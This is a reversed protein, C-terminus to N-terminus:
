RALYGSVDDRRGDLLRIAFEYSLHHTDWTFPVRAADFLECGTTGCFGDLKSVFLYDLAEAAQRLARDDPRTQVFRDLAPQSFGYRNILDPLDSKMSLYGGFVVVKRVGAERLFRLYTALHQDTYWGFLVNIVIYDFTRLYSPDHRQANLRRCEPLDPHTPAVIADIDPHPPCGGLTSTAFNHAAFAHAFANHADPAHSDGLILGNVAGPVLADCRDWGKRACQDQRTTFRLSRREHDRHRTAVAHWWPFRSPGTPRM